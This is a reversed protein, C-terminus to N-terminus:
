VSDEQIGTEIKYHSERLVKIAREFNTQKTLIYDTDYTSVVFIGIQNSALVRSIGALIGIQSFDLQGAIRFARWDDERCETNEPVYETPCVLSKESDTCGTFCFPLATVHDNFSHVKCVSFSMPLIEITLQKSNEQIRNRTVRKRLNGRVSRYHKKVESFPIWIGADEIRSYVEDLILEDDRDAPYKGLEKYKREYAEYMWQYIKEKQKLKLSSYKKNTQLLQGNVVEHNKM